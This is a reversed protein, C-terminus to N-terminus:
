KAVEFRGVALWVFEDSLGWSARLSQRVAPTISRYRDTDVGNPVVTLLERPVIRETIFRTAAADSVITMHDVLANTWRYALMRLRGSEYINHITSVLGPVPAFLRLVRAMPHAHVM